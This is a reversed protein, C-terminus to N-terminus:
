NTNTIVIKGQATIRENPGPEETPFDSLPVAPDRDFPVYHNHSGHSVAKYHKQNFAGLSDALAFGACVLVIAIFLYKFINKSTM